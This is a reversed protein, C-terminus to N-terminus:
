LTRAESVWRELIRRLTEVEVPKTVFDNMGAEICKTRDEETSSATLAIIPTSGGNERRRIEAATQFGDMGPMHCDMVIAGYRGHEYRALAETGSAVVDVPFGLRAIIASAVLQNVADDEVVLIPPLAGSRSPQIEKPHGLRATFRFTSGVDQESELTITGGMLEVLQRCIALGLGTGGYRRTTSDDVQSFPEFVKARDEERIGIGTDRVSVELEVQDDIDRADIAVQVQGSRTFKIANDVLNTLVQSFRIPDGILREPVRDSVQLELDIPRDGVRGRLLSIVSQARKRVDLEEAHLKLGLADMQSLDLIDNMVALLAEASDHITEVYERQEATLETTMLLSTMGVVGNMPTRLEHSTNALFASKARSAEDARGLALTLQQNAEQLSARAREEQREYSILVWLVGILVSLLSLWGVYRLTVPDLYGTFTFGSLDLFFFTTVAASCVVAWAVAVRRGNAILALVPLLVYWIMAPAVAGEHYTSWTVVWFLQLHLWNGAILPSRTLRLVLPTSLGLITAISTAAVHPYRGRVFFFITYLVAAASLVFSYAVVRRARRRDESSANPKLFREPAFRSSSRWGSESM